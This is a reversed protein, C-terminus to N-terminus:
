PETSIRFEDASMGTTELDAFISELESSDSVFQMISKILYLSDQFELKGLLRKQQIDDFLKLLLKKFRELRDSKQLHIHNTSLLAILREFQDPESIFLNSHSVITNLASAIDSKVEPNSIRSDTILRLTEALMALDRAFRKEIPTVLNINLAFGQNPDFCKINRTNHKCSILPDFGVNINKSCRKIPNGNSTCLICPPKSMTLKCTEPLGADFTASVTSRFPENISQSSKNDIPQILNKPDSQPLCALVFSCLLSAVIFTEHKVLM